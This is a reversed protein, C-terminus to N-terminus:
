ITKSLDNRCIAEALERGYIEWPRAYATRLASEGVKAISAPNALITEVCEQLAKTSGAEVLWGNKGHEILDPGATRDTTIVPTGQSMAETIVMGFGEFLSPFILVDHSHMLKLVNEHSLSPIWTHKALAKDLAVCNNSAKYGVVTLSVHPALADAVAFVDAIGKRQSLGGVFLLKITKKRSLNSYDKKEVPNPFGYPIIDVPALAGPYEKLSRATFSSAVFIRDALALEEDKRALKEESDKFGTLTPIWEPWRQKEAELLRRATRWYGIPLDYYCTLGLRKAERFSRLAGDEYGYVGQSGTAAAKRLRFSTRSDLQRYVSDVSFLGKEHSTLDSWGLKGAVLRGAELWPSCHTFPQLEPSFGRRRIESLFGFRGMRDLIGGPFAAVGTHFETLMDRELFGMLASRNFQNSSPHSVVLKM